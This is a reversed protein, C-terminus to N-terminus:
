DGTGDSDDSDDGTPPKGIVGATRPDPAFWPPPPPNGQDPLVLPATGAMADVLDKGSLRAARADRAGTAAPDSAPDRHTDEFDAVTERIKRVLEIAVNDELRSLADDIRDFLARQEEPVNSM